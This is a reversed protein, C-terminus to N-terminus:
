DLGIVESPAFRPRLERLLQELNPEEILEIAEDFEVWTRKRAYQEPWREHVESVDLKFLSVHCASQNKQYIYSGLPDHQIIGTLGAEEWAEILAAQSASHGPDIMGKPLIWKRTRTSTVLCVRNGLIPLAGAQRIWQPM